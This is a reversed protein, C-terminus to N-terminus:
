ESPLPPSTAEAAVRGAYAAISAALEVVDVLGPGRIDGDDVTARQSEM